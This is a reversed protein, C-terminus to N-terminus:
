KKDIPLIYPTNAVFYNKKLFEESDTQSELTSNSYFLVYDVVNEGSSKGEECIYTYKVLLMGDKLIYGRFNFVTASLPYTICNQAIMDIENETTEKERLWEFDSRELFKDIILIDELQHEENFFVFVRKGDDQRLVVYYGQFTKRVCQCKFKKKFRFYNIRRSHLRKSEIIDEKLEAIESESYTVNVLDSFKSENDYRIVNFDWIFGIVLVTLFLIILMLIKKKM